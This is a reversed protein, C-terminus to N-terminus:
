LKAYPENGINVFELEEHHFIRYETPDDLSCCIVEETPVMELHNGFVQKYRVVKWLKDTNKERVINGENYREQEMITIDVM